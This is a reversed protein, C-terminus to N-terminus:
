IGGRAATARERVIVEGNVLEAHELLWQAKGTVGDPVEVTAEYRTLEAVRFMSPDPAIVVGVIRDNHADFGARVKM